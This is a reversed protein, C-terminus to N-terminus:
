SSSWYWAQMGAAMSGMMITLAEDGSMVLMFLYKSRYTAKNM